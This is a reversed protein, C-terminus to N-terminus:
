KLSGFVCCLSSSLLWATSLMAGRMINSPLACASTSFGGLQSSACVCWFRDAYYRLDIEGFSKETPKLIQPSLPDRTTCSLCSTSTQGRFLLRPWDVPWKLNLARTRLNSVGQEFWFNSFGWGRDALKPDQATGRRIVHQVSCSVQRVYCTGCSVSRAHTCRNEFIGLPQSTRM